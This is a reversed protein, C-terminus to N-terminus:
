FMYALLHDQNKNLRAGQEKIKAMTEKFWGKSITGCAEGKVDRSKEWPVYGLQKIHKEVYKTTLQFTNSDIDTIYIPESNITGILLKKAGELIYMIKEKM